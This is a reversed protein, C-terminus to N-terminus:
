GTARGHLVLVQGAIDCRGDIHVNDAGMELVAGRAIWLNNCEGHFPQLVPAVTAFRNRHDIDIVRFIRRPHVVVDDIALQAAV